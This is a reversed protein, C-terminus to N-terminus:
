WFHVGSLRSFQRHFFDRRCNEAGTKDVDHSMRVGALRGEEVRKYALAHADYSRLRLSSAMADQGNEVSFVVL